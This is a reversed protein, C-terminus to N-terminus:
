RYTNTMDRDVVIVCFYKEDIERIKKSIMRTIEADTLKVGYSVCVDFILNTHTNGVVARFDHISVSPLLEAIANVAMEHLRNTEEDDTVVPDLHIVLHIGMECSFEREINDIIDHSILIDQNAPVEVHVSAFCRQPGYNHVTLDHLGLVGEYSMIKDAIQEVFERDPAMGLLPNITEGILKVGSIIIFIAVAVGMYGDLQWGTLRGIIVSLLVVSTSIVDNLSDAATAELTTSRIIRGIRKNFVGQWLKMLISIVLVVVTLLSFTTEEPHMIKEFSSSVLQVGLLIIAFSIVLGTIYEIRAHGYPHKEDAPKGSLKFGILTIISSGADSLNNVADSMVSISQFLFGVLFKIAFLIINSVIGVFGAFRGYVERVHPNETDQHNKVFLRILFKTM